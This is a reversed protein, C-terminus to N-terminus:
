SADPEREECLTGEMALDVRQHLVHSCLALDSLSMSDIVSDLTRGDGRDKYIVVVAVHEIEECDALLHGLIGGPGVKRGEMFSVSARKGVGDGLV